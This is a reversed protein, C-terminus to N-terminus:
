ASLHVKIHWIALSRRLPYFGGHSAASFKSSQEATTLQTAKVPSIPLTIPHSADTTM